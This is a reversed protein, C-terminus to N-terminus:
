ARSAPARIAAWAAAAACLPLLPRGGAATTILSLQPALWLCALLLSPGGRRAALLAVGLSYAVMDSSYLYPSLLLSLACILITSREDREAMTRSYGWAIGIAALASATQIAYAIRDPAGFARASWFVSAAWNPYGAGYMTELVVRGHSGANAHFLRWAGFGFAATTAAAILLASAATALLARWNRAALLAVPALLGLQPKLLLFGLLVGARAPHRARCLLGAFLLAGILPAIQGLQFARWAAPSALGLAIVPWSLGALRLIAASVGAITALWLFYGPLLPIFSFPAALLLIPPPYLWDLRAFGAGFLAQRAAEFGASSYLTGLLQQRALHGAVWLDAFDAEPMAHTAPSLQFPGAIWQFRLTLITICLTTLFLAAFCLWGLRRVYIDKRTV